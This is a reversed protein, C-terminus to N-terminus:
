RLKLEPFVENEPLGLFESIKKRYGPYPVLKANVIMNVASQPMEAGRALQNQSIEKEALIEKLKTM